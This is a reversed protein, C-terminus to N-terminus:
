VDVAEHTATLSARKREPNPQKQRWKQIKAVLEQRDIPKTAYDDCGAKICKDLDAPM